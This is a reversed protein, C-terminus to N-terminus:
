WGQPPPLQAAERLSFNTATAPWSILACREDLRRITMRAPPADAPQATGTMQVRLGTWDNSAALGAGNNLLFTLTNTGPGFGTNIQFYTFESFQKTNAQGTTAGNILIDTGENDTAWYGTILATAPDLGTLDFSIQYRYNAAGDPATPGLGSPSCTIWASVANDGLWPGFPAVPFQNASTAVIVSGTVASGQALIYHPDRADDSLPTGADNVGTNFLGPIATAWAPFAGLVNITVLAPWLWPLRRGIVLIRQKMVVSGNDSRGKSARLM